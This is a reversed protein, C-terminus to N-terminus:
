ERAAPPLHALLGRVVAHLQEDTISDPVDGKVSATYVTAGTRADTVMLAIVGKESENLTTRYTISDNGPVPVQNVQRRIYVRVEYTVDLDAGATAPVYGRAQMEQRFFPLLVGDANVIHRPGQSPSLTFTRYPGGAPYNQYIFAPTSAACAALLLVVALVAPAPLMGKMNM